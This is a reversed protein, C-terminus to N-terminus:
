WTFPASECNLPERHAQMYTPLLPADISEKHDVKLAQVLYANLVSSSCSLSEGNQKEAFLALARIPFM